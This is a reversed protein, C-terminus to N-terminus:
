DAFGPRHGLQHRTVDPHAPLDQDPRHEVLLALDDAIQQGVHEVHGDQRALLRVGLTGLQDPAELRALQV